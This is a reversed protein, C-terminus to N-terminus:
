LIRQNALDLVQGGVSTSHRLLERDLERLEIGGEAHTAMRRQLRPNFRHPHLRV